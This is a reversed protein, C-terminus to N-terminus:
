GLGFPNFIDLASDCREFDAIHRTVVILGHVSATATLLSEVVPLKNGMAEAQGCLQAWEALVEADVGVMRSEFRQELQQIWRRIKKAKHKNEPTEEKNVLKFYGKKLEAITVSSLYLTREDQADLWNIVKQTPQKKLYESIVCTDVLYNM